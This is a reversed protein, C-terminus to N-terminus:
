VFCHSSLCQQPSSTDGSNFFAAVWCAAFCRIYGVCHLSHPSLAMLTVPLYQWANGTNKKWIDQPIETSNQEQICPQKDNPFYSDVSSHLWVKRFACFLKSLQIQSSTTMQMIHLKSKYFAPILSAWELYGVRPAKGHFTNERFLPKWLFEKLRQICIRM